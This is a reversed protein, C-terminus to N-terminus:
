PRYRLVESVEANDLGLYGSLIDGAKRYCHAAMEDEGLGKYLHGLKFYKRGMKLCCRRLDTKNLADNFSNCVLLQLQMEYLEVAAEHSSGSGSVRWPGVPSISAVLAAIADGYRGIAQDLEGRQICDSADMKFLAANSSPSSLDSQMLKRRNRHLEVRRDFKGSSKKLISSMKQTYGEKISNIAAAFDGSGAHLDAMVTSIELNDVADCHLVTESLNLATKAHEIGTSFERKQSYAEAFILHDVVVALNPSDPLAMRASLSKTVLNISKDPKGVDLYAQSLAKYTELVTEHTTGLRKQLMQMVKEKCEVFKHLQCTDLYITSINNYCSVLDPHNPGLTASMISAADLFCKLANTIDKGRLFAIAMNNFFRGVTAHKPGVITVYIFLGKEFYEIAEKFNEKLSQVDGMACYTEALYSNFPDATQAMIELAKEFSQQALGLQNMQAYVKGISAYARATDPCMLGEQALHHSLGKQFNDLAAQFMDQRMHANGLGCYASGVLTTCEDYRQYLKLANSFREAASQYQGMDLEMSAEAIAKAMSVFAKSRVVKAPRQAVEMSSNMSAEQSLFQAFPKTKFDM